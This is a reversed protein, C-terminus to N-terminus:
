NEDVMKKLISFNVVATFCGKEALFNLVLWFKFSMLAQFFLIILYLCTMM